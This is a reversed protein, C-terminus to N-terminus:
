RRWYDFEAHGMIKFERKQGGKAEGRGIQLKMMQDEKNRAQGGLGGGWGVAAMKAGM